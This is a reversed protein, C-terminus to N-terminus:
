KLSVTEETSVKIDTIFPELTVIDSKELGKTDLIIEGNIKITENPKVNQNVDIVIKKNLIRNKIAENVSPQVSKIFITKENENTLNIFYSYKTKDLDNENVGGLASSWNYIKLGGKSQVQVKTNNCGTFFIFILLSFIITIIKKSM